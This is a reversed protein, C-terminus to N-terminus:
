KHSCYRIAVLLGLCLVVPANKIVHGLIDRHPTVADHQVEDDETVSDCVAHGTGDRERYRLKTVPLEIHREWELSQDFALKALPHLIM